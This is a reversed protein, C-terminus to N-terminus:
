KSTSWFNKWNGERGKLEQGSTPRKGVAQAAQLISLPSEQVGELELEREGAGNKEEFSSVRTDALAILHIEALLLEKFDQLIPLGQSPQESLPWLKPAYGPGPGKWEPSNKIELPATSCDKAISM